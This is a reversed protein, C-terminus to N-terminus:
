AHAPNNACHHLIFQYIVGGEVNGDNDEDDRDNAAQDYDDHGPDLEAAFREEGLSRRRLHTSM